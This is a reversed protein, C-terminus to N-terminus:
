IELKQKKIEKWQKKASTLVMPYGFVTSLGLAVGITIIFTDFKVNSVQLSIEWQDFNWSISQLKSKILIVGVLIAAGFIISIIWSFKTWKLVTEVKHSAMIPLMIAAIIFGMIVFAVLGIIAVIPAFLVLLREDKIPLFDLLVEKIEPILFSLTVGLSLFTGFITIQCAAILMRGFGEKGSSFYVDTSPEIKKRTSKRKVRSKVKELDNTVLSHIIKDNPEEDLLQLTKSRPDIYDIVPEQVEPTTRMRYKKKAM